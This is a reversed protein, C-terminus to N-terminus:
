RNKWDGIALRRRRRGRLWLAIALAWGGWALATRGFRGAVLVGFLLLRLLGILARRGPRARAPAEWNLTAIKPLLGREVCDELSHIYITDSYRAALLLDRRLAPWPLTSRGERDPGRWDAVEWDWSELNPPDADDISGVGIADAHGGYSAVLAGGLDDGLLEIPVVSSCMLVDLDASLDVIDLARQILTTGARRDDAIVPMQYTHVEYGDLHIAVILESYAAYASPYLINERALWFRRALAHARRPQEEAVDELPPEISLGVAEYHLGRRRAWTHFDQYSSLARPYNQLNFAFGEDPSLRLSAVAPIGHQNLLRTAAEAADDLRALPLAVGCGLAVLTEIVGPARLTALLDKGILDTSFILRPRDLDGEPANSHITERQTM